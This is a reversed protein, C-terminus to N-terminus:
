KLANNKSFFHLGVFEILLFINLKEKAKVTIVRIEKGANDMCSTTQKGQGTGRAKKDSKKNRKTNRYHLKSIEYDWGKM